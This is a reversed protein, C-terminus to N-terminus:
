NGWSVNLSYKEGYAKGLIDMEDFISNVAPMEDREIKQLLAQKEQDSGKSDCLQAYAMYENKYVPLVKEFLAVSKEKLAKADEDSVNLEQIDKIAKEVVQIKIEVAKQAEDGNKKSSPLQPKDPQLRNLHYENIINSKEKSMAYETVEDIM